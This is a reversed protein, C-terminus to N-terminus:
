TIGVAQNGLNGDKLMLEHFYFYLFNSKRDSFLGTLPIFQNILGNSFNNRLLQKSLFIISSNSLAALVVTVGLESSEDELELKDFM